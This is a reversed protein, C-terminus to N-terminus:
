RGDASELRDIEELVGNLEVLAKELEGTRGLCRGKLIRAELRVTPESSSFVEPKLAGLAKRWDDLRGSQEAADALTRAKFYIARHQLVRAQGSAATPPDDIEVAIVKDFAACAREREGALGLARGMAFDMTMQVGREEALPSDPSEEHKLWDAVLAVLRAAAAKREESGPECVEAARLMANLLEGSRRVYAEFAKLRGAAPAAAYAERARLMAETLSKMRAEAVGALLAGLDRREGAGLRAGRLAAECAREILLRAAAELDAAAAAQPDDRGAARRFDEIRALTEQGLRVRRLADAEADAREFALYARALAAEAQDPIKRVLREALDFWRLRSLGRVQVSDAGSAAPPEAAGALGGAGLGVVLVATWVWVARAGGM